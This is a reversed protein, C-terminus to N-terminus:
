ITATAPENKVESQMPKCYNYLSMKVLDSISIGLKKAVSKYFTLLMDGKDFRTMICDKQKTSEM